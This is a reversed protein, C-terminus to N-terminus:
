VADIKKLRKLTAINTSHRLLYTSKNLREISMTSLVALNDEVQYLRKDPM